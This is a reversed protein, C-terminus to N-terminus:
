LDLLQAENTKKFASESLNNELLAICRSLQPDNGRRAERWDFAVSEDPEIPTGELVSGKWTYYAGTPFALRYGYGVKASTASLLRGATKEGVIIALSNERAFAVIMEAASATHRNVLLVVSGHFPKDELGETELVIPSKKVLAPAYRLALLWLGNKSAPIRKFRRFSNKADAVNQRASKRDLAFGVPIQKPTLVSMVRLAGIGGGTNGRLDIILRGVNGLQEVQRSIENAVEVGVMGPFMAVKLYGIGDQLRNGVVLEPEVFHLKKGKPRAVTVSRTRVEGDVALVTLETTEGMAFTPHIPPIIEEAGVRLLIDGPGIGALSAAGGAHVDQFIWRRGEDTDDALYTASLAARSSARRASGHFFGIHSTKLEELLRTVAQEFAAATPADIVEPRHRVVADNWSVGLKEPQYFKEDLVKLVRNLVAKKQEITLNQTKTM